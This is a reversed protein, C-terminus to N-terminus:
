RKRRPQARAVRGSGHGSFPNVKGGHPVTDPHQGFTRDPQSHL